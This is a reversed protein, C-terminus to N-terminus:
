LSLDQWMPSDKFSESMNQVFAGTIISISHEVIWDSCDKFVIVIVPSSPALSVDLGSTDYIVLLRNKLHYPTTTTRVGSLHLDPGLSRIVDETLDSQDSDWVFGITIIEPSNM